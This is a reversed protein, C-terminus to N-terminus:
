GFLPKMLNLLEGNNGKLFIVMAELFYWGSVFRAGLEM